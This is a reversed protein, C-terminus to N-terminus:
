EGTAATGPQLVIQAEDQVKVAQFFNRLADYYKQEVFVFDASLKRTVHVNNGREIKLDYKVINGDLPKPQPVSSVLWGAPLEMTIEDDKEFPYHLYIPHVRNAHDFIRKESASFLGVPLIARKGASAVWGPVKLDFVAVLPAESSTWDPKDTLELESAAPIQEKLRDELEKKREADDANRMERRLTMAELGTYTVTVKGEVDGTELVKLKASHKVQSESPLPVPTKIWTGGDKDLKLGPTGTETWHLMGFPTFASGPDFYRDQGNLKVLVVNSDLRSTQEGSPSFFYRARDAVWCGYAEFGASRALALFLWTLQISNGYQRKWVDEVNEDIKQKARKEEQETKAPEYTTNRIQQVRAYIKRLKVEPADGPSVITAVAEDMAKRKGIFSELTSDRKKGWKAWFKAVDKEPLDEDYIFDVRAKLENEPPMFDETQFAAINTVEMRLVHRPDEKPGADAPLGQWTWRLHYPIYDSHYPKLSFQARKTFLEESLIWHSDYIYHERLDVTYFYEIIGRVQVDPLTFTKALYKFGRGKVLAKEFVKGDFEAISGDPRITRAHINVVDQSDKFFPIEVNAYKRGEETLIKIRFYNDEHSTRGNDDRDVQRYLIIAPAGPALPEKDMKLEEQSPPQFNQASALQPDLCSALM